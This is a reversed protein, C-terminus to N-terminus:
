GKRDDIVLRCVETDLCLELEEGRNLRQSPSAVFEIACEESAVPLLPRASIKLISGAYVVREIVARFRHATRPKSDLSIAKAPVFLISSGSGSGSISAEGEPRGAAIAGIATEITLTSGSSLISRVPLLSGLGLFSVAWASLPSEYLERPSAGAVIRGGRM